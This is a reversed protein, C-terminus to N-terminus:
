FFNEHPRDIKTNGKGKDSAALVTGCGGFKDNCCGFVVSKVGMLSIAGACMICPECSVYLEVDEWRVNEYGGRTRMADDFAVM